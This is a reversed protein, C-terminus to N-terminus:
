LPIILPPYVLFRYKIMALFLYQSAFGLQRCQADSHQPVNLLSTSFEIYIFSSQGPILSFMFDPVRLNSNNAWESM